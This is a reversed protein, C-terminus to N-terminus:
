QGVTITNNGSDHGIQINHNGHITQDASQERTSINQWDPAPVDPKEKQTDSTQKPMRSPAPASIASVNGTGSVVGPPDNRELLEPLIAIAAAGLTAVAGLVALVVKESVRM